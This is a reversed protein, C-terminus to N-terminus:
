IWEKGSIIYTLRADRELCFDIIIRDGFFEVLPGLQHWNDFWLSIFHGDGFHFNM